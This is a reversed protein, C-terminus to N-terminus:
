LSESSGVVYRRMLGRTIRIWFRMSKWGFEQASWKCYCEARIKELVRDQQIKPRHPQIEMNREKLEETLWRREKVSMPACEESEDSENPCFRYDYGGILVFCGRLNYGMSSIYKCYDCRTPKGIIAQFVPERNFAVFKFLPMNEEDVVLHGTYVLVVRDGCINLAGSVFSRVISVSALDNTQWTGIIQGTCAEQATVRYIECRWPRANIYKQSTDRPRASSSRRTQLLAPAAM